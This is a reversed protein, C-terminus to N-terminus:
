RWVKEELNGSRNKWIVIEDDEGFHRCISAHGAEHYAATRRERMGIQEETLESM